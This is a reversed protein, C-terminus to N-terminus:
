AREVPVDVSSLGYLLRCMRTHEEWAAWGSAEIPTSGDHGEPLPPAEGPTCVRAAQVACGRIWEPLQDVLGNYSRLASRDDHGPMGATDTIGAVLRLFRGSGHLDLIQYRRETALRLVRESRRGRALSRGLRYRRVAIEGPVALRMGQLPLSRMDAPPQEPLDADWPWTASVRLRGDEGIGLVLDPAAIRELEERSVVVTALGLKHVRSAVPRLEEARDSRLAVRPARAIAAFRASVGDVGMAAALDPALDPNGPGQLVLLWRRRYRPLVVPPRERTPAVPLPIPAEEPMAMQIAGPASPEASPAEVPALCIDPAPPAMARALGLAKQVEDLAAHVPRGNEQEALAAEAAM